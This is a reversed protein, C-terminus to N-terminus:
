SRVLQSAEWCALGAAIFNVRGGPVPIGIAGIIFFILAVIMLAISLINM